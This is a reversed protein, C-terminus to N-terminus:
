NKILKVCGFGQSNKSGLGTDLAVQLLEKPGRLRFDVMYGKIIIGKYKVINIQPNSLIDMIIKEESAKKEYLAHYKKRLNNEIIKIFNKEKPHYYITYKRKDPLLATSYATVPSLTKLLVSNEKIINNELGINSIKLSTNGLSINDKLIFNGISQSIENIPTTIVLSPDNFIIENKKKNIKFPGQIRSFSFMKFNRKEYQFGKNHLFDALESFINNYIASQILYNYNL